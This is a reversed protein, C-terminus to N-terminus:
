RYNGSESDERIVKDLDPPFLTLSTSFVDSLDEQRVLNDVFRCCTELRNGVSIGQKGPFSESCFYLCNIVFNAEYSLKLARLIQM